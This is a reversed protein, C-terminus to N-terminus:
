DIPDFASVKSKGASRLSNVFMTSLFYTALILEISFITDKGESDEFLGKMRGLAKYYSM